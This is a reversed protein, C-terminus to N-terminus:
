AALRNIGVFVVLWGCGFVILNLLMWGAFSLGSSVQALLVREYFFLEFVNAAPRSCTFLGLLVGIVGDSTTSGTITELYDLIGIYLVDLVLLFVLVDYHRVHREQRM